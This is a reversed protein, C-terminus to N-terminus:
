SFLNSIRLVFDVRSLEDCASVLVFTWFEFMFHEAVGGKKTHFYFEYSREILTPAVETAWVPLSFGGRGPIKM